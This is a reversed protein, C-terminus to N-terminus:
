LSQSNFLEANSALKQQNEILKKINKAYAQLLEAGLLQFGDNSFKKFQLQNDLRVVVLGLQINVVQAEVGTSSDILRLNVKVPILMKDGIIEWHSLVRDDAEIEFISTDFGEVFSGNLKLQIDGNVRQMFVISSLWDYMSRVNKRVLKQASKGDSSESFHALIRDRVDPYKEDIFKILHAAALLLSILLILIAIIVYLVSTVLSSLLYFLVLLFTATIVTVILEQHQKFWPVKSIGKYSIYCGLITAILIWLKSLFDLVKTPVDEPDSKKKVFKTLAQTLGILPEELKTSVYVVQQQSAAHTSSFNRYASKTANTQASKVRHGTSLGSLSPAIAPATVKDQEISHSNGACVSFSLLLGIVIVTVNLKM